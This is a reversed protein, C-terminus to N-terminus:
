NEGTIPNFFAYKTSPNNYKGIRDVIGVLPSSINYYNEIKLLCEDYDIISSNLNMGSLCSKNKYFLIMYNEAIFQSIHNNTYYFEKAYNKAIENIQNANILIGSMRTNKITLTCKEINIDLCLNVKNAKTNEPCNKLCEGNYQYIYNDDLKCDYICKNKDEFVLSIKEPCHYNDACNYEGTLSYYYYSPCKIVCNKTGKIEPMFIYLLNCILCNNNNQDGYGLCVLCTEYCKEYAMIESNFYYNM